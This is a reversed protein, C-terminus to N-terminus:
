IHQEINDAFENIPKMEDELRVSYDCIVDWGDNGLVLLVSGRYGSEPNDTFRVTASDVAFIANMADDVNQTATTAPEPDYVRFWYGHEAKMTELLNRVIKKEIARVIRANRDIM